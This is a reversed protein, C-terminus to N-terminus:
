QNNKITTPTFLDKVHQLYANRNLSVARKVMIRSSISCDVQKIIGQKPFQTYIEVCISEFTFLEPNTFYFSAVLDFTASARSMKLLESM